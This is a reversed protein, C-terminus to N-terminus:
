YYSGGLYAIGLITKKSDLYFRIYEASFGKYKYEIYYETQAAFIDLDDNADDDTGTLIHNISGGRKLYRYLGDREPNFKRVKAKGYARKIQTSNSGIRILRPTSYKEGWERQTAKTGYIFNFYGGLHSKTTKGDKKIIFDMDSYNLDKKVVKVSCSFKKKGVKATIKAKGYSKAKLKGAKSVSVIGPNNSKWSVHKKGKNRIHLKTSSGKVMVINKESIKLSGAYVSNPGLIALCIAFIVIIFSMKKM